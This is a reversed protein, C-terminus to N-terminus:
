AIAEIKNGSYVEELTGESTAILHPLTLLYYVIVIVVLAEPFAM